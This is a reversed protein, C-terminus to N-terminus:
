QTFAWAIARNTAVIKARTAADLSKNEKGGVGAEFAAKMKAQIGPAESELSRGWKQYYFKGARDNLERAKATTTINETDREIAEAMCVHLSALEARIQTSQVAGILPQVATAMQGTPAVLPEADTVTVTGGLNPWALKPVKFDGGSLLLFAGILAAVLGVTPNSKM